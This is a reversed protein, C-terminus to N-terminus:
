FPSFLRWFIFHFIRRGTFLFYLVLFNYILLFKGRMQGALGEGPVGWDCKGNVREGPLFTKLGDEERSEKDFTLPRCLFM